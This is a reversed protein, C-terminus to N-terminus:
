ISRLQEQLWPSGSFKIMAIIEDLTEPNASDPHM